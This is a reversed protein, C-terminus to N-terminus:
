VLATLPGAVADADLAQSAMNAAKSWDLDRRQSCPSASVRIRSQAEFAGVGELM